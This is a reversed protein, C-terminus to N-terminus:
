LITWLAPLGVLIGADKAAAAACCQVRIDPQHLIKFLSGFDFGLFRRGRLFFRIVVIEIIDGAGGLRVLFHIHDRPNNQAHQDNRCGYPKEQQSLRQAARRVRGCSGSLNGM